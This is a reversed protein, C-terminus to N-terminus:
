TGADESALLRALRELEVRLVIVREEGVVVAGPASGKPKRLHRKQTYQVDVVAEGRADSFHAALHAADVLTDSGLASHRDGRAVVHSGTRGKAHFWWDVPRAYKSTLEDNQAAGKGAMLMHEGAGYFTRFPMGRPADGAKGAGQSRQPKGRLETPVLARWAAIAAEVEAPTGAAAVAALAHKTAARADESVKLRGAAISEGRAMRKAKEFLALVQAAAPKAPDLPLRLEVAEGTSWDTGVLERAGRPLKKAEAILWPGLTALARTHQMRAIDERVRAARKKAKIETGLLLARAEHQAGRLAAQVLGAHSQAGAALMEDLGPAASDLVSEDRLRVLAHERALLLRTKETARDVLEVHHAGWSRVNMGELCKDRPLGSRWATRAEADKSLGLRPEKLPGATLALVYTQGPVRLELVAASADRHARQVLAGLLTM